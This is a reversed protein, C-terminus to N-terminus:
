LPRVVGHVPLPPYVSSLGLEFKVVHIIVAIHLVNEFNNM